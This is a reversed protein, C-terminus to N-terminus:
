KKESFFYNNYIKNMILMSITENSQKLDLLLLDFFRAAKLFAKNKWKSNSKSKTIIM